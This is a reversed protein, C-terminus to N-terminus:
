ISPYQITEEGIFGVTIALQIMLISYVKRIFGRRINKDDFDFAAGSADGGIAYSVDEPKPQHHEPPPFHFAGPPPPGLPYQQGYPGQQTPAMGFGPQQPYAGAAGYPQGGPYIGPPPPHFPAQQGPGPFASGQSPPYPYPPPQQQDPPYGGLIM